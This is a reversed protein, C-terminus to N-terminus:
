EDLQDEKTVFISELKDSELLMGNSGAELCVPARNESAATFVEPAPGLLPVGVISRIGVYEGKMCVLAATM